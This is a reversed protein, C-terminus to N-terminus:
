EALIYYSIVVSEPHTKDSINEPPLCNFSDFYFNGYSSGGGMGGLTAHDIQTFSLAGETRNNDTNTHGYRGINSVMGTIRRMTDPLVTGLKEGQTLYRDTLNPLVFYKADPIQPTKHHAKYTDGIVAYLDPYDSKLVATGDCKLFGDRQGSGAAFPFIAGIFPQRLFRKLVEASLSLTGQHTQVILLDTNELSVANPFESIYKAKKPFDAM